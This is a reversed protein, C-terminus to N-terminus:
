PRSAPRPSPPSPPSPGASRPRPGRRRRPRSTRPRPSSPAGPSPGPSRRRCPAAPAAARRRAAAAAARRRRPWTRCRAARGRGGAGFRTARVPRTPSAGLSPRADDGFRPGARPRRGLSGNGSAACALAAHVLRPGLAGLVVLRAAVELGHAGVGLAEVGAAEALALEGDGAGGRDEPPRRRAQEPVPARREHHDAAEGVADAVARVGEGDGAGAAVAGRGRPEERAARARERAEPAELLRLRPEPAALDAAVALLRPVLGHVARRRRPLVGLGQVARRPREAVDVRVRRRAAGRPSAFSAVFVEVSPNSTCATGFRGRRSCVIRGLM